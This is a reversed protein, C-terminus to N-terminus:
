LLTVCARDLAALAETRKATAVHHARMVPELFQVLREGIGIIAVQSHYVLLAHLVM